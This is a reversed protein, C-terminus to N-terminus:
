FIVTAVSRAVLSVSYLEGDVSIDFAQSSETDNLVILVVEGNTNKFAVNPLGEVENSQIRVSGPRVFRGAHAVTYYAPNRTVANGQITIAGLCETCGGETHPDENQDAALNWELVNRSWNRTAGITLNKIHWSFDSSFSGPAGVWQETFYINKDPHAEQVKSLDSISGGYLHFASGDVYQKVEADNLISIPYDTRDANHDYIIIKAGIGAANFAPGLSNKIFNAQQEALMELSPNNYANLPENQITIADIEIGEEAMSQIYKVFYDAYVSYYEGKLSGGITSNNSKMWTPPSWPSALIKIEPYIALIEKLIPILNQRDPDLSFNELNVDTQGLPLDNYSFPAPDLDSAGLSIRLYSVGVNGEQTGFLENLISAREGSDMANLVIASGGTLTYGFGDIEQFSISSNIEIVKNNAPSSISKVRGEVKELLASKDSTTLFLIAETSNEKDTVKCNNVSLHITLLVGFLVIRYIQRFM